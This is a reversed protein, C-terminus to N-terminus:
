RDSPKWHCIKVRKREPEIPYAYNQTTNRAGLARSSNIINGVTLNISSYFFIEGFASLIEHVLSIAMFCLVPNYVFVVMAQAM